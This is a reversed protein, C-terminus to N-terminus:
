INNVNYYKETGDQFIIKLIFNELPKVDKIKHFM